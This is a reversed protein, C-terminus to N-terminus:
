LLAAYSAEWRKAVSAQSFPGSALDQAARSMVDWQRDAMAFAALLAAAITESGTGCDIAAGTAFGEPLHCAESMLTPVGAAWAELVAM